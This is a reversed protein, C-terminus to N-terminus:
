KQQRRVRIKQGTILKKAQLEPNMTLLESMSLGNLAAISVLTDGRRVVYQGAENVFPPPPTYKEMFEAAMVHSRSLNQPRPVQRLILQSQTLVSTRSMPEVPHPSESLLTARIEFRTPHGAQVTIFGDLAEANTLGAPFHGAQLSLMALEPNDWHSEISWDQPIWNITAIMGGQVTVEVAEIYENEALDVKPFSITLFDGAQWGSPSTTRACGTLLLWFAALFLFIWLSTFFTVPGQASPLSRLVDSHTEAGRPTNMQTV